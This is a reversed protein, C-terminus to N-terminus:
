DRFIEKLYTDLYLLDHDEQVVEDLLLDHEHDHEYNIVDATDVEPMPM